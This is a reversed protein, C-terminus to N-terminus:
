KCAAIPAFLAAAASIEADAAARKVSVNGSATVGAALTIGGATNDRVVGGGEGVMIWNDTVGDGNLRILLRNGEITLGPGHPGVTIGHWGTGILSNNRITINSYGRGSAYLKAEDGIFIGQVHAAPGPDILNGEIVVDHAARDDPLTLGATFFQIGDPHDGKAPSFPGMRNHAITANSAGVLRVGERVNAITNDAFTVGVTRMFTAVTGLDRFTSGTVTIDSGGRGNIGGGTLNGASDTYAAFTVNKFTLREPSYADVYPPVYGTMIRDVPAAEFRTGDFTVNKWSDLVTFGFVGGKITVDHLARIRSFTVRRDGLDIVAGPQAATALATWEKATLPPASQALAPQCAFCALALLAALLIRIM